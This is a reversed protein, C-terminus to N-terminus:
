RERLVVASLSPVTLEKGRLLVQQEAPLYNTLLRIRSHDPAEWISELVSRFEETRRALPLLWTGCQSPEAIQQMRGHLLYEPFERRIANLNRILTKVSEQDPASESWPVTWGWHIVGDEKLTVSLLDGANFAYALRFLLNEPSAKRNIQASIGCQNGAFCCSRGHFVFSQAPVPCGMGWLFSARADNLPLDNVFPEAASSECGLV